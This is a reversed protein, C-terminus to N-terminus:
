LRSELSRAGSARPSSSPTLHATFSTAPQSWHQFEGALLHAQRCQGSRDGRDGKLAKRAAARAWPRHSTSSTTVLSTSSAPQQSFVLQGLAQSWSGAVVTRLTWHRPPAQARVWLGWEGVM